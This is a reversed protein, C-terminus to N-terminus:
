LVKIVSLLSIILIAAVDKNEIKNEENIKDPFLPSPNTESNLPVSKDPQFVV